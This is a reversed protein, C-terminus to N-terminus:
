SDGPRDTRRGRVIRVAAVVRRHGGLAYLWCLTAGALALLTATRPTVVVLRTAVVPDRPLPATAVSAFGFTAFVELLYTLPDPLDVGPGRASALAALLVVLAAGAALVPGRPATPAVVLGLAFSLPVALYVVAAGFGEGSM